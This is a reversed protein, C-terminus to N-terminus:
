RVPVPVLSSAGTGDGLAVGNGWCYGAGTTTVGCSHFRGASVSAFTLGGAVAVPRDSTNTTGNGLKGESNDGWCYAAGSTTVGCNHRNGASITAFTLGGIVAVPASSTNLTGNGLEAYGNLGWCYALGDTTLGCAHFGGASVSAFKLQGSVPVPVLSRTNTGDGLEGDTNDGWCYAAGATTLGCTFYRGTSISAFTLGASVAAPVGSPTQTGNGLEGASNDGWCYGVGDTTLGCSHAYGASVSALALGGSVAAPVFHDPTSTGLRGSSNDGWCYGVGGTTVGCSHNRGASISAFTLGGIVAVPAISQNSTGDGLKGDLNDGWCYGAGGTTLGCSHFYGASVTAFVLPNRIDFAASVGSTLGAASAILTYGLNANDISLDSFSAIGSHAPVTTTGSLTGSGANTGIALTVSNNATGVANGGADQVAVRVPPAFTAGATTTVPQQIFVLKAGPGILMNFLNSTVNVNTGAAFVTHAILTYGNGPNDISVASFTAVGNVASVTTTGFLNGNAPNTGMSVTISNVATTITNGAADQVAVGFAPLTTNAITNVPQVTFVLQAPPGILVDFPNSNASALNASTASLSYGTGPEKITLNSFTAVGNVAAVTATGALTGSPSSTAMAVTVNDTATTVTNGDADQIAVAVGPTILVGATTNVPQVTFALKTPVAPTTTETCAIALLAAAAPVIRSFHLAFAPM